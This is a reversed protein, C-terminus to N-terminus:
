NAKPFRWLRIKKRLLKRNIDRCWEKETSCDQYDLYDLLRLMWYPNQHKIDMTATGNPSVIRWFTFCPLNRIHQLFKRSIFNISTLYKCSHMFKTKLIPPFAPLIKRKITSDFCFHTSFSKTSFVMKQRHNKIMEVLYTIKEYFWSIRRFINKPPPFFM